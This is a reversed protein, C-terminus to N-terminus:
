LGSKIECNKDKEAEELIKELEKETIIIPGALCEDNEEDYEPCNICDQFRGYIPCYDFDASTAYTVEWGQNTRLYTEYFIYDGGNREQGLKEPYRIITIYKETSNIM